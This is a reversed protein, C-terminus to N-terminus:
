KWAIAETAHSAAKQPVTRGRFLAVATLLFGLPTWAMFNLMIPAFLGPWGALTSLLLAFTVLVAFLFKVRRIEQPDVQVAADPLPERRAHRWLGVMALAYFVFTFLQVPVSPLGEPRLGVYMVGYLLGLYIGLGILGGRSFVVVRRGAAGALAPRSLRALVSFVLIAVVLNVALNVPGGSNM